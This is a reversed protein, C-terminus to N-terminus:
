RQPVFVTAHPMAAGSAGSPWQVDRFDLGPRTAGPERFRDDWTLRGTRRDLLAMMVRPAGDGQETIVIRDSTPDASSWHPFFTSDTPLSSVERPHRSDSVDLVAVRHQYVIPMIWWHGLVVPVACGQDGAGARKLSLVLEAAPAPGDLGSLRYFGCTYTNVLVTRGDALVRPEFPYANVSDAGTPLEITRLLKLDALRWVQVVHATHETDMPASTTVARHLAPVVALGYPRIHAGPFAPDVASSVRLLRGDDDLEAIGGPRAATSDEDYQVTALVHGDPLRVLSHPRFYGPISDVVRALRPRAHDTADFIFLQGSHYGSTFFHRGPAFVQEAHHPMTHRAGVPVVAVVRGYRAGPAASDPQLDVVALIDDLPGGAHTSDMAGAWVYLYRSPGSPAVSRRAPVARQALAVAPLVVALVVVRALWRM